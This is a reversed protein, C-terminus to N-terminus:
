LAQKLIEELHEPQVKGADAELVQGNRGIVLTFPLVSRSNGARRTLEIANMGGLLIPYNVGTEKVFEVVEQKKDDTDLSIGVFQVSEPPYKQQLKVLAPMEERCPECWTAWFNVVLIRGRWASITQQKNEPVTPLTTSLVAGGALAPDFRSEPSKPLLLFIAALVVAIGAIVVASWLIPRRRSM